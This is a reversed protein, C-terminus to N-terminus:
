SPSTPSNLSSKAEVQENIWEALDSVSKILSKFTHVPIENDWETHRLIVGGDKCGIIVAVKRGEKHRANLWGDQLRSLLELPRIPVNVPLPDVYKYEIWLDGSKGSYWCDPIGGIYQNHNKMHYASCIKDLQKHVRGIFKNEPTMAM